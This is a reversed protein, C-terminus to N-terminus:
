RRERAGPQACEGFVFRSPTVLTDVFTIFCAGKLTISKGAGLVPDGSSFHLDCPCIELPRRLELGNDLLAAGSVHEQTWPIWRIWKSGVSYHLARSVLPLKLNDGTVREDDTLHLADSLLGAV